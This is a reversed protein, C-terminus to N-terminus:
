CFLFIGKTTKFYVRNFSLSQRVTQREHLAFVSICETCLNEFPPSHPLTLCKTHLEIRNKEFNSKIKKKNSAKAIKLWM